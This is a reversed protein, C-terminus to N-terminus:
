IWNKIDPSPNPARPLVHCKYGVIQMGPVSLGQDTFSYGSSSQTSSNQSWHSGSAGLCFPGFAVAASGGQHSADQQHMYNQFGSNDGFDLCLNRIFIISTPYAPLLGKPPMGADSLMQGKVDPNGQDFRWTHSNLYSTKVWPKVIAVQCIDFSMSCHDSNFSSNFQSRSSSGGASGSGGFIGFYSAGASAQWGGATFQSNTYQSFDGSSFHFNSWGGATAFHAPTLATYFFDSGSAIGTLRAKELDDLYHQKLLSLDRGEVQAIFANIEEYQNKYGEGIWDDMAAKVQNRLIPANIAFYQVDRPNDAAMANIRANNYALAANDYATMKETYAQVLPSPGSVQVKDGTILDTKETTVNLLSRFHDIKKQVDDPIVSQMVQSMALTMEYVDSFSGNDSQVAKQSLKRGNISACDPIFDVLRALSEAQQFLGSVDQARLAALQAETLGQQAPPPSGSGGAAPTSGSAAPTSGAAAQTANLMTQVAAPKVVGTFGQTLFEFDEPVVPVGPTEWSFFNNDSKPVTDDGNTLVDYLKGMISNALVSPDVTPM